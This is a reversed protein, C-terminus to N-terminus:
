RGNVVLPIIKKFRKGGAPHFAEFLLAYVGVQVNGGKMTVGDWLFTDDTSLLANDAVQAVLLGTPTFIRINGVYGEAPMRCYIVCVDDIGDGDPSFRESSLGVMRDDTEMQSNIDRYQSNAYGPTGYGCAASASHWSSAEDSPLDPHIRELAVGQRGQVLPHQWKPSYAVSDAVTGDPAVLLVATGTNNLAQRWTTVALCVTDPLPYLERLVATDGCLAMYGYPRLVADDPFLNGANLSGDAKRTTIRWGALALYRSSRSLIEVYEESDAIPDYMLENLLVDAIGAEVAMATYHEGSGVLPNGEADFVGSVDVCYELDEDFPAAVQVWLRHRTDIEEDFWVSFVPLIGAKCHVNVTPVDSALPESFTLLFRDPPYMELKTYRPGQTDQGPEGGIWIDDFFFDRVRSKTCEYMVGCYRSSEVTIGAATGEVVWDEDQAIDQTYLTWIGQQDHTVKIRVASSTNDLLDDRGDILCVERGNQRLCLSIDDQASGIRVYCAETAYRLNQHNAALVFMSYNATSPNCNFAALCRWETNRIAKCPTSLYYTGADPANSQLRLNAHIVFADTDGDWKPATTFDGDDFNDSVTNQAEVVCPLMLVAFVLMWRLCSGM